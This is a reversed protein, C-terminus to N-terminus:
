SEKGGTGSSSRTEKPSSATSREKSAAHEAAMEARLRMREEYDQRLKPRAEELGRRILAKLEEGTPRKSKSDATEQGEKMNKLM